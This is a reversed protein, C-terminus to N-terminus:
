TSYTRLQFWVLDRLTIHKQWAKMSRLPKALITHLCVQSVYACEDWWCQGVEFRACPTKKPCRTARSEQKSIHQIHLDRSNRIAHQHKRETKCRTNTKKRQEYITAWPEGTLSLWRSTQSHLPPNKHQWRLDTELPKNCDCQTFVITPFSNRM